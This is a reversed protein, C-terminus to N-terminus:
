LPDTKSAFVGRLPDINCAIKCEPVEHREMAAKGFREVWVEGPGNACIEVVQAEDLWPRIPALAREIFVTPSRTHANM